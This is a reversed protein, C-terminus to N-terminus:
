TPGDLRVTTGTRVATSSWRLPVRIRGRLRDSSWVLPRGGGDWVWGILGREEVEQKAVRFVEELTTIGNLVKDIGDGYLTTM